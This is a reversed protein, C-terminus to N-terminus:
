GALTDEHPARACAAAFASPLASYLPIIVRLPMWHKRSAKWRLKVAPLVSQSTEAKGVCMSQLKSLADSNADLENQVGDRDTTEDSVAKDLGMYERTKYKIAKEKMIKGTDFTKVAEDYENV